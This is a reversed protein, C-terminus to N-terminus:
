VSLTVDSGLRLELLKGNSILKHLDTLQTSPVFEKVIQWNM